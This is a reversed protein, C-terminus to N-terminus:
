ALATVTNGNLLPFIILASRLILGLDPDLNSTGKLVAARCLQPKPNASEASTCGLIATRMIETKLCSAGLFVLLLSERHLNEDWGHLSVLSTYLFTKLSQSSGRIVTCILWKEQGCHHPTETLETFVRLPEHQWTSINSIPM